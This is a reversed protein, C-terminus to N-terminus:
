VSTVGTSCHLKAIKFSRWHGLFRGNGQFAWTVYHAANTNSFCGSFKAVANAHAMSWGYAEASAKGIMSVFDPLTRSCARAYERKAHKAYFSNIMTHEPLTCVNIAHEVCEFRCALVNTVSLLMHCQSRWLDGTDSERALHGPVLRAMVGCLGRCRDKLPKSM